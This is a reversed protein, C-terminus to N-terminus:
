FQYGFALGYEIGDNYQAGWSDYQTLHLKGYFADTFQTQWGLIIQHGYSDYSFLKQHEEDRDIQAEYNVSLNHKLGAFSLPYKANLVLAYGSIDNFNEDTPSFHGFTYNFGVGYNLALDGFKSNHTVGLYLNDEVLTESASIFNQAWFNFGSEGLKHEIIALSKLTTKGDENKQNEAVEGPNELKINAFYSGWDALGLHNLKLFPQNFVGPNDDKTDSTYFKYGLDLSTKTVDAQVNASFAMALAVGSLLWKSSM